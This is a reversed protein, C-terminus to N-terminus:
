GQESLRKLLLVARIHNADDPFLRVVFALVMRLTEKCQDNVSSKQHTSVLRFATDVVFTITDPNDSYSFGAVDYGPLLAMAVNFLLLLATLDHSRISEQDQRRVTEFWYSLQRELQGLDDADQSSAVKEILDCVLTRAEVLSSFPLGIWPSYIHDRYEGEVKGVKLGSRLILFTLGKALNATPGISKQLIDLTTGSPQSDKYEQMLRVTARLHMVAAPLNNQMLELCWATLSAVAVQLKSPNSNMIDTIASVYHTLAKSTTTKSVSAVGSHFKKHTMSLALLMHKVAPSEWAFQPVVVTFFEGQPGYQAIMPSTILLWHQLYANEETTGFSLKPPRFVPLEDISTASDSLQSPSSSSRTSTSDASSELTFIRAKPTAYGLCERNGRICNSCVPQAEDCKVRRNREEM